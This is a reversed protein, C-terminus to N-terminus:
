YDTTITLHHDLWNHVFVGSPMQERNRRTNWLLFDTHLINLDEQRINRFAETLADAGLVTAARLDLEMRSGTGLENRLSIKNLLSTSIEIIGMAILTQPVRYDAFATLNKLSEKSIPQEKSNQFKGYVMGTFLQSRKAFPDRWTPLLVPISQSILYADHHYKCFLKDFTFDMNCNIFNGIERLAEVREKVMSIPGFLENLFYNEDVNSLFIPDRIEDWRNTLRFGALTSGSFGTEPDFYKEYNQDFYCYNISNFILYFLCIEEFDDTQPYCPDFDWNPIELKFDRLFQAICYARSENIKVHESNAVLKESLERVRSM